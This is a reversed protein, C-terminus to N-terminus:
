DGRGGGRHRDAEAGGQPVGEQRGRRWEQGVQHRPREGEPGKQEDDRRAQRRRRQRPGERANTAAEAEPSRRSPAAKEAKGRLVVAEELRRKCELADQAASEQFRKLAVKLEDIDLSGSNDDDLSTFLADIERADAKEGLTKKVSQRMEMKSIKGDGNPDWERLLDAVKM